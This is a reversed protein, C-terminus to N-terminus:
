GCGEKYSWEDKIHLIEIFNYMIYDSGLM